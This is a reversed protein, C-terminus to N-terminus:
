QIPRQDVNMSAKMAEIKINSQMQAMAIREQSAIKAIAEAEQAKLDAALEVQRLQMDSQMKQQNLQIDAQTSQQKLVLEAKAKEVAPDAQPPKPQKSKEVMADLAQEFNGEMQRGAKFSRIAFMISEKLVPALEPAQAGIAMAKEIFGGITTLFELRDKKDQSEDLAVTSDTEIDIRFTRQKDSKLLEVAAKANQAYDPPMFEVGAMDLMTEADFSDAIVEGMICLADKAFRAVEHKMEDLRLTAFNSKIKEATATANPASYGRVIDSIGTIEDIDRKLQERAQRLQEYVKAFIEIPTFMVAAGIDSKGGKEAYKAILNTVPIMQLEPGSFLSNIDSAFESDFLGAVKCASLLNDMRQTLVDIENAQDQYEVFYPVPVLSGNTLIGYCPKPCPFFDKLTLPAPVTKLVGVEELSSFFVVERNTKDWIEWVEARKQGDNNTQADKDDVAIKVSSHTQFKLLAAKEKGLLKQADKKSLLLRRGVWTVHDWNRVPTHAFDSMHVFDVCVKESEKPYVLEGSEDVIPQMLTPDILAGKGFAVEYRVWMTGRGGHLFDDRCQGMVEDFNYEITTSLCRQLIDSAVRAVPDRDAYRRSVVPEPVRNYTAPQLISVNSYYINLRKLSSQTSDDEDREDRYRKIIKEVRKGWSKFTDDYAKLQGAWDVKNATKKVEPVDEM